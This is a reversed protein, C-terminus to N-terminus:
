HCYSHAHPKQKQRESTPGKNMLSREFCAALSFQKVDQCMWVLGSKLEASSDADATHSSSQVWKRVRWIFIGVQKVHENGSVSESVFVISRRNVPFAKPDYTM